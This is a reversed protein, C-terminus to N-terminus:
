LTNNDTFSIDRNNVCNNNGLGFVDKFVKFILKQSYFIFINQLNNAKVM